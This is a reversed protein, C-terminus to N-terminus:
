QKLSVDLQIDDSTNLKQDPGKSILLVENGNVRHYVFDEGWSDAMIHKLTIGRQKNEDRYKQFEENELLDNLNKPFQRKEYFYVLLHSLIQLQSKTAKIDQRKGPNPNNFGHPPAFM